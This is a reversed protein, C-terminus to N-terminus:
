EKKGLVARIQKLEEEAWKPDLVGEIVVRRPQFRSRRVHVGLRKRVIDQSGKTLQHRLKLKTPPLRLLVNRRKWELVGRLSQNEKLPAEKSQALLQSPSETDLSEAGRGAFLLIHGPSTRQNEGYKVGFFTNGFVGIAFRTKKADPDICAIGVDRGTPAVGEIEISFDGQFVARHCWAGTGRLIGDQTQIPYLDKLHGVTEFDQFSALETMDYTIKLRRRKGSGQPEVIGRFAAAAGVVEIGAVLRMRAIEDKADAVVKTKRYNSRLTVLGKWAPKMRGKQISQRVNELESSAARETKPDADPDQPAAKCPASVLAVLVLPGAVALIPSDPRM